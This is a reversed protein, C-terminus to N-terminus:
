SASVELLVIVLQYETGSVQDTTRLPGTQVSADLISGRGAAAELAHGASAALAAADAIDATADERLSWGQIRVRAYRSVPTVHQQLEGLVVLHRTPPEIPPRVNAVAVGPLAARLVELVTQEIDSWRATIKQSM